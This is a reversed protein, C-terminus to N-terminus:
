DLEVALIDKEALVLFEGYLESGVFRSFVVVDEKELGSEVKDGVSAVRGRRVNKMAEDVAGGSLIIGSDLKKETKELVEVIVNANLAQIKM